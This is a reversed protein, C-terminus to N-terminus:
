RILKHHTDIHWLSNPSAVNYVRRKITQSWRRAVGVPDVEPLLKEVRNRQVIVPPTEARMLAVMERIGTNPYRQSISELKQKLEDDSLTSFRERQSVINNNKAYQHITNYHLTGGLLGERAIRRVSFGQDLLTKLLEKDIQCPPNGVKKCTKRSISPIGTTKSVDMLETIKKQIHSINTNVMEFLNESLVSKLRNLNELLVKLHQMNQLLNNESVDDSFVTESIYEVAGNIHNFASTVSAISNSSMTRFTFQFCSKYM